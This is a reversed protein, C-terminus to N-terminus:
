KVRKYGDAEADALDSADIELTETGNSVKVKQGPVQMNNITNNLGTDSGMSGLGKISGTREYLRAKADKDNAQNELDKILRDVRAQNNEESDNENWTNEIIRQGEKETFQAGLLARLSNMVTSQVDARAGLRDNDALLDPILRNERGLSIENNRLKQAVGKLKDIETRAIKAGGASWENYDKAFDKDVARQGETGKLDIEGQKLALKAKTEADRSSQLSRQELKDQEMRALQMLGPIKDNLQTASMKSSDFSPLMKRALTQAFKSEESNPDSERSFKDSSIKAKDQEQGFKWDTQSQDVRKRQKDDLYNKMSESQNFDAKDQSLGKDQRALEQNAPDTWTDKLTNYEGQIVNPKGGLNQINNYLVTDKRNGKSFDNLANAFISGYQANKVNSEADDVKGQRAKVSEKLRNTYDQFMEESSMASRPIVAEGPSLMAPVVDNAPDDMNPQVIGGYAYGQVTQGLANGIGYGASAGMPGGIIGGAIAGGAGLIAGGLAGKRRRKEADAQMKRNEMEADYNYGMTVNQDNVQNGRGWNAQNAQNRTQNVNGLATNRTSTNFRSIADAAQAKQAQEGFDQNRLQTGMQGLQQTASLKMNQSQGAKEMAALAERDTADQNAQLQMLADMGSGSMGRVAMNNQIAGMRGRNQTSVNRQLKYIDAEDQATLGTKSREELSQLAALQADKYRPDTSVKALDSQQLYQL